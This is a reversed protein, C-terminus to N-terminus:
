LYTLHYGKCTNVKGQLHRIVLTHTCNLQRACENISEFVEGTETIMVKIKPKGADYSKRVNLGTDFAHRENESRTVWELNNIM